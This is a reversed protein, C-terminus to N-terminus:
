PGGPVPPRELPRFAWHDLPDDDRTGAGEPWVAGQDIWARLTAVEADSLTRTGEDNPPMVLEDDLGAVLRILPSEGAKGPVIAPAHTDGGKLAAARLDLRLGGRQRKPGHCSVCRAKFIPRVDRAFDVARPAAAAPAPAPEGAPALGALLLVGAFVRSTTRVTM